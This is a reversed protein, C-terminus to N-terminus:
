GAAAARQREVDAAGRELLSDPLRQALDRGALGRAVGLDRALDARGAGDARDGLGAGGVREGDRDRAMAHDAGVAIERAIAPADLALARQEVALGPSSRPSPGARRPARM